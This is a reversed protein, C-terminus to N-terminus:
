RGIKKILHRNLRKGIKNSNSPKNKNFKLHNSCTRAKLIIHSMHKSSIRGTSYNVQLERLTKQLTTKFKLLTWKILKQIEYLM